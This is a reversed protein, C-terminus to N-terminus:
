QDEERINDTMRLHASGNTLYECDARKSVYSCVREFEKWLDYKELEWSHGWLHYIDGERRTADFVAKALAPFGFFASFPLSLKQIGGRNKLAPELLHMWLYQNKNKKRFPFPYAHISTGTQHPDKPKHIAFTETTRASSFKAKKVLREIDANYLGYPYCFTSIKEGILSELWKKGATIELLAEEEPLKTLDPHTLTHGGIEHRKALSKIHANSISGSGCSDKAIYFTGRLGYADLIDAVRMDLEHGDDWSTTVILKKM